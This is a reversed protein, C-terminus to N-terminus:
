FLTTQEVTACHPSFWVCEAKANQRGRANGQNGYGGNTQWRYREWDSPFVEDCEAVAYGCVAIRLLPNHGNAVAWAAADFWIRDEDDTGYASSHLHTPYPPDLLIATVGFATTISPTLVRRWDGCVIRVHELRAALAHMTATLTNKRAMDAVGKYTEGYGNAGIVPMKKTVGRRRLAETGHANEGPHSASIAPIKKKLGSGAAGKVLQGDEVVWPGDAYLDGGIQSAMCYLFWGAAKADYYDPDAACRAALEPLRDKLWIRRAVLDCESV